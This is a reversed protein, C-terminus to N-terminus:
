VRSTPTRTSADDALDVYRITAGGHTVILPRPFTAPHAEREGV